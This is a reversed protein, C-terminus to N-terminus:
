TKILSITENVYVEVNEPQKAVVVVALVDAYRIITTETPVPLVLIGNYMVQPVAAAVTSQTPGSDTDYWLTM